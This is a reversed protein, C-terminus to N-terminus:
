HKYNPVPVASKKSMWWKRKEQGWPSMKGGEPPLKDEAPDIGFGFPSKNHFSLIKKDAV